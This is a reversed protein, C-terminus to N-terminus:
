LRINMNPYLLESTAFFDVGLKSYLMFGDPRSLMKLRRTSFPECFLAEMIDDSFEEYDYGKDRAICLERTNLSPGWSTTPFTLNTRM